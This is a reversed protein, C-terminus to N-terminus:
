LIGPAGESYVAYRQRVPDGQSAFLMRLERLTATTSSSSMEFVEPWKSYADVLVLYMRGNLPGAYDIHIRDWPKKETTWSNLVTKKPMKAAEQCNCCHRAAEEIDRNINTWYVYGRALMKMRAMGPHGFYLCGNQVSLEHSLAKWSNIQEEPKSPWTGTRLMWIVQSVREDKRSEEETTKRTVPLAKVAASQVALIDQEIKAIVIDETQAPRPPILRSLVDAQGFETTKQYEIEFDYGFLILKWRQLRNATYVPVM